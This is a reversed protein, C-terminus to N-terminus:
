LMWLIFDNNAPAEGTGEYSRTKRTKEWNDEPDKSIFICCSESQWHWCRCFAPVSDPSDAVCPLRGGFWVSEWPRQGSNEHSYIIGTTYILYMLVQLKFFYQGCVPGLKTLVDCPEVDTSFYPAFHLLLIKSNLVIHFLPESSLYM